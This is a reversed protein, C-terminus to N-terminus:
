FMYLSVYPVTSYMSTGASFLVMFDVGREQKEDIHKVVVLIYLKENRTM